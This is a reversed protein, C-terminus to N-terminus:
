AGIHPYLLTLGGVGGKDAGFDLKLMVEVKDPFVKVEHVYLDVTKKKALFNSRDIGKKQTVYLYEIVMEETMKSLPSSKSALYEHLDDKRKKLM